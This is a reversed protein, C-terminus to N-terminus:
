IEALIECVRGRGEEGIRTLRARVRQREERAAEARVMEDVMTGELEAIRDGQANVMLSLEEIEQLLARNTNVLQRREDDLSLVLDNPYAYTVRYHRRPVRSSPSYRVRAGGGLARYYIPRPPEVHGNVHGHDNAAHGNGNDM